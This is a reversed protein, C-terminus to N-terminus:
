GFFGGWYLLVTLIGVEFVESFFDVKHSTEIGHMLMCILLYVVAIVVYIVQPVGM